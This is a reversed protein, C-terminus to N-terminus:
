SVKKTDDEWEKIIEEGLKRERKAAELIMKKSVENLPQVNFNFSMSPKEKVAPQPQINPQTVNPRLMPNLEQKPVKDVELDVIGVNM